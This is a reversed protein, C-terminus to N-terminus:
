VGINWIAEIWDPTQNRAFLVVGIVDERGNRQKEMSTGTTFVDDVILLKGGSKTYAQLLNALKLGGRPIGEVRNFYFNTGIIHAAWQWDKDSLHDCEIKWSLEKGSSSKFWGEQFLSM